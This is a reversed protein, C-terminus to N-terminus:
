GRNQSLILASYAALAVTIRHTYGDHPEPQAEATAPGQDSFDGSYSKSDTNLRVQWAGGTPVGLAYNEVPQTSFNIVVMVDDGAGGKSWRRYGLIKQAHNVHNIELYQGCLGACSQGRDLRLHVLDRYLAHIGAHEGLKAWDVPVEDRFWGDELFEQGQFIMPVGPATFTLVAGLVSRKRAPYSDTTGPDIESPLRAKGNAVEDHSESYIVRRFADDEYRCRLASIVQNLDRQEDQAVLLSARVPHVFASDWQSSFGAGGGGTDKVLWTDDRLDEAITIFDPKAQRLENNLWQCLSWGDHLADGPDQPKGSCSRVYVTADWRLGDVGYLNLWMLANDRIYARVEGRGYDPRSEGWPTSARWDNYFYIGGLNNESWGDFQWLGLDGPGFHNYVVDLIVAIGERHAADVFAKFGEPGGYATEVAWPHAPNYGWSRDGAFEAIPMVEVANIGLDRLYPLKAIASAFTGPDEGAVANFTGIHLEYVVLRDLTPAKFSINSQSDWAEGNKGAPTWIIGNGISNTVKIARPDVRTFTAEGRQLAYRYEQGEGATSVVGTWVGNDKRELPHAGAKWSNFEGVVSVADANPAWLGFAVGNGGALLTAGLPYEQGSTRPKQDVPATTSKQRYKKLPPRSSLAPPSLEM